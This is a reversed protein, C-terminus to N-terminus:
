FFIVQFCDLAVSMTSYIRTECALQLPIIIKGVLEDLRQQENESVEGEVVESIIFRLHM